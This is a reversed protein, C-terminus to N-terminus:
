PYSLCSCCQCPQYWNPIVPTNRRTGLYSQHAAEDCGEEQVSAFSPGECCLELCSYLGQFHPAEALYLADSVFGVNGVLFETGLDLLCFSWM